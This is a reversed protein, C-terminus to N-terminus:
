PTAKGRRFLLWLIVIIAVLLLWLWPPLGLLGQGSGVITGVAVPEAAGVFV